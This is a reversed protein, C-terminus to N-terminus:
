EEQEDMIEYVARRILGAASYPASKGPLGPAAEVRLGINGALNRDFGGPPSALELILATEQATCLMAETIVRAPVTNVVFDFREMEGELGTYDLAGLGFSRAEARDGRARAAVTVRAGLAYLRLALARGIRGWGCILVEAGLLARESGEILRAIACEATLAANEQVFDPRLMIDELRLKARLALECSHDSFRGGALIQGPWLAGILEEMKLVAGSLPANLLGGREAPLPLIVCDAGYVCGQICGTKIVEPPMEARELAYAYVRHGDRALMACLIAARRDGGVVAFKM